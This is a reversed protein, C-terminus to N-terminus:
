ACMISRFILVFYRSIKKRLTPDTIIEKGETEIFIEFGTKDGNFDVFRFLPDYYNIISDPHHSVVSDSLWVQGLRDFEDYGKINQELQEIDANLGEEISKLAYTVNDKKIRYHRYDELLFSLTISLFIVLFEIFYKKYNSM